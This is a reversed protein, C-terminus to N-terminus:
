RKGNQEKKSAAAQGEKQCKPCFGFFNLQHHTIQYGTNKAMELSIEALAKFEPDLIQGCRTCIVHPHPYPKNGDYRSGVATFNLELVEGMDKLLSLTKYITALSTTPFDTRILEYIQDVSPHGESRAIIKLLALRQPTLRCGKERLGRTMQELRDQPDIV